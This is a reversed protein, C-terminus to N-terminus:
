KMGPGPGSRIRLNWRSPMTLGTRFSGHAPVRQEFANVIGAYADFDWVNDVQAKGYQEEFTPAYLLVRFLIQREFKRYVRTFYKCDASRTSSM